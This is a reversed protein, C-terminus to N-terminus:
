LISIECTALKSIISIVCVSTLSRPHALQDAGKNIEHLLIMNIERRAWKLSSVDSKPLNEMFKGLAQLEDLESLQELHKKSVELAKGASFLCSFM